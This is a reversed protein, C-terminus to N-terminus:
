HAQAALLEDGAETRARRQSPLITFRDAAAYAAKARALRATAGELAAAAPLTDLGPGATLTVDAEAAQHTAFQGGNGRAGVDKRRKM